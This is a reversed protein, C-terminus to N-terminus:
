AAIPARMRIDVSCSLLTSSPWRCEGPCASPAGSPPCIQVLQHASAEPLAQDDALLVDCRRDLHLAVALFGVAEFVLHPRHHQEHRLPRRWDAISACSFSASVSRARTWLQSCALASNRAIRSPTMLSLHHLVDASKGATSRSSSSLVGTPWSVGGSTVLCPTSITASHPRVGLVVVAPSARLGRCATRSFYSVCPSSTDSPLGRHRSSRIDYICPWLGSASVRPSGAPMPGSIAIQGSPRAALLQRKRREIQDAIAVSSPGSLPLEPVSARIRRRRGQLVCNSCERSASGTAAVPAHARRCARCARRCWRPHQWRRSGGRPQRRRAGAAGAGDDGVRDGLAHEIAGAELMGAM